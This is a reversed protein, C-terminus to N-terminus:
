RDGWVPVTVRQKSAPCSPVRHVRKARGILGSLPVLGMEGGVARGSLRSSDLGSQPLAPSAPSSFAQSNNTHAPSDNDRQRHPIPVHGRGM